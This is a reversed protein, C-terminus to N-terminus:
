KRLLRGLYKINAKVEALQRRLANKDKIRGEYEKVEDGSLPGLYKQRIRGNERYSLYYYVKGRVKRGLLYGPPYEGLKKEYKEKLSRSRELEEQLVGKVLSSM